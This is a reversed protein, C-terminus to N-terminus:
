ESLEAFRLKWVQSPNVTIQVEERREQPWLCAAPNGSECTAILRIYFVGTGQPTFEVRGINADVITYPPLQSFNYTVVGMNSDIIDWQCIFKDYQCMTTEYVREYDAALVVNSMLLIILIVKKM